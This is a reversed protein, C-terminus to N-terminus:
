LRFSALDDDEGELSARGSEDELDVDGVLDTWETGPNQELVALLQVFAKVTARPTRFYAAGVVQNCHEMFAELGEDPLLYQEPDGAAQVHRLNRLLVFLEEPTLAALRVVPGSLDVHEETAFSSESLRTRLAEYSYLGRRTDTLWEPTGAFLVGLGLAQGQLVDNVIALIREYNLNRAKGSALKYLNVMEDLGVLLGGYGAVRAFRAMLKLHEYVSDDDVITRVGLAARAETKTAFEARLWRVADSKLGERGEDHGRWYAEIVQAFDFGGVLEALKALREEIAQAPQVGEEKAAQLASTVFREVLGPLAGGDPKARTALNHMLERYLARGQGGSAQIRRDPTLDAHATVLRKELAVQRVLHLFFTKGSGYAGIVFRVGGGGDVVRDVDQVLAAVERARGVQVHELGRRPVVGARLAQLITDRTRPRIPPPAEPSDMRSERPSEVPSEVPLEEPSDVPLEEPVDEPISDAPHERSTESM